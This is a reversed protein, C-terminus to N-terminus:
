RAIKARRFRRPCQRLEEPDEADVRKSEARMTAARMTSLVDAASRAAQWGRASYVAYFPEQDLLSFARVYRKRDIM